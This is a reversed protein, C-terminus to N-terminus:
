LYYDEKEREKAPILMATTHGSIKQALISEVFAFTLSIVSYIATAAACQSYGSLEPLYKMAAVFGMALLAMGLHRIVWGNQQAQLNTLNDIDCEEAYERFLLWSSYIRPVMIMVLIVSLVVTISTLMMM